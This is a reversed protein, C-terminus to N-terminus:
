PTPGKGSPKNNNNINNTVALKLSQEVLEKLKADPLAGVTKMLGKGDKMTALTPISRVQFLQALELSKDVDVKVVKVTDKNAEAFKELRPALGRCPGCWDAYFDILVLKDSKLVEAEFNDKDVLTVFPSAM